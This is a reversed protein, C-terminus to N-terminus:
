AAAPQTKRAALYALLKQVDDMTYLRRGASDRVPALIGQDSYRVVSTRPVGCLISIGSSTMLTAEM